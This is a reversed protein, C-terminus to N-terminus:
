KKDKELNLKYKKINMTQKEQFRKMEKPSNQVSVESLMKHESPNEPDVCDFNSEVYDFMHSNSHHSFLLYPYDRKLWKNWDIVFYHKHIFETLKLDMEELLSEFKDDFHSKYRYDDWNQDDHKKLEQKRKENLKNEM